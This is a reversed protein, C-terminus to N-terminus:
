DYLGDQDVGDRHSLDDAPQPLRKGFQPLVLLVKLRQHILARVFKHLRAVLGFGGVPGLAGEERSQAVFKTRRQRRPMRADEVRSLSSTVGGGILTFVDVRDAAAAFCTKQFQDVVHKIDGFDLGAFLSAIAAVSKIEVTRVTTSIIRTRASPLLMQRKNVTLIRLHRAVDPTSAGFNRCIRM